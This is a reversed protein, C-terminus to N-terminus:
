GKQGESEHKIQLLCTIYVKGNAPLGSIRWLKTLRHINYALLRFLVERIQMCWRKAYIVAGLRKTVFNVTEVKSRQHYKRKSYGRKMKKRYFGKTRHIPVDANRPPIVCDMGLDHATEHSSEAAYGKDTVVIKCQMIQATKKLLQKFDNIDHVESKHIRAALILQKDTEVAISLKVNKRVIARKGLRKRYHYSSDEVHFGTADIGLHLKKKRTLTITQGLLHHLINTSLRRAFKRITSEDPIKTLSLIQLITPRTKLDEILEAYSIKLKQKFILLSLLQHNNYTKKSYKSFFLPICSCLKLCLEIFHTYASDKISM